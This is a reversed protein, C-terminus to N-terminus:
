IRIIGIDPRCRPGDIIRVHLQVGRWSFHGFTPSALFIQAHQNIFKSLIWIRQIVVRLFVRERRAILLQELNTTSCGSRQADSAIRPTIC